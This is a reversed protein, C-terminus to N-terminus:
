VAERLITWTRSRALARHADAQAAIQSFYRNVDFLTCSVCRQAKRVSYKCMCRAVALSHDQYHIIKFPSLIRSVFPASLELFFLQYNQNQREAMWTLDVNLYVQNGVVEYGWWYAAGTPNPVSEDRHPITSSEKFLSFIYSLLTQPQLPYGRKYKEVGKL